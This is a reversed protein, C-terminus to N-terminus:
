SEFDQLINDLEIENEIKIGNRFQAQDKESILAFPIDTTRVLRREGEEDFYYLEVRGEKEKLLYYAGDEDMLVDNKPDQAHDPDETSIDANIKIDSDPDSGEPQNMFLGFLLLLILLGFIGFGKLNGSKRKPTFINQNRM